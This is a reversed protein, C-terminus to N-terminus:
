KWCILQSFGMKSLIISLLWFVYIGPLYMSSTVLGVLSIKLYALILFRGPIIRKTSKWSAKTITLKSKMCFQKSIKPNLGVKQMHILIQSLPNLATVTTFPFMLSYNTTLIPHLCHSGFESYTNM